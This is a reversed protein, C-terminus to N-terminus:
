TAYSCAFYAAKMHCIKRLITPRNRSILMTWILRVFTGLIKAYLPISGSNLKAAESIKMRVVIWGDNGLIAPPLVASGDRLVTVTATSDGALAAIGAAGGRIRGDEWCNSWPWNYLSSNNFSLLPFLKDLSQISNKTAEKTRIM